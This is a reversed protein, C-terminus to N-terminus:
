IPCYGGIQTVQPKRHLNVLLGQPCFLRQLQPHTLVIRSLRQLDSPHPDPREAQSIKETYSEARGLASFRYCFYGLNERAQVFNLKQKQRLDNLLAETMFWDAFSEELQAQTCSSLKLQVPIPFDPNIRAYLEAERENPSRAEKKFCIPDSEKANVSSETKLCKLANSFPNRTYDKNFRYIDLGITHGLEHLLVSELAAPDQDVIMILHGLWIPNGFFRYKLTNKHRDSALYAASFPSDTQDNKFTLKSREIEALMDGIVKAKQEDKEQQLISQLYRSAIAQASKFLDRAKSKRAETFIISDLARCADAQKCHHSRRLDFYEQVVGGIRNAAPNNLYSCVQNLYDNSSCPRPPAVGLGDSGCSLPGGNLESFLDLSELENSQAVVTLTLLCFATLFATLRNLM